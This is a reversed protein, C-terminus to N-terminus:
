SAAAVQPAADGVALPIAIKLADVWSLIRQRLTNSPAAVFVQAAGACAVLIQWPQNVWLVPHMGLLLNRATGGGFAMLAAIFFFDMIDLRARATVLGAQSTM